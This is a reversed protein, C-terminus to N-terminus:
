SKQLDLIMSLDKAKGVEPQRTGVEFQIYKGNGLEIYYIGM